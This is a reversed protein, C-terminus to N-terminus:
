YTLPPRDVQSRYHHPFQRHCHLHIKLDRNISLKNTTVFLESNLVMHSFVILVLHNWLYPMDNHRTTLVRPPYKWCHLFSSIHPHTPQIATQLLKGQSARLYKWLYFSRGLKMKHMTVYFRFWITWRLSNPNSWDIAVDITRQIGLPPSNGM